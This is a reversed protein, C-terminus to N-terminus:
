LRAREGGGGGGGKKLWEATIERMENKKVKGSVTLPYEKVNFVHKPIKYHAVKGKCFERVQPHCTM